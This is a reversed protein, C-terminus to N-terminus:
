IHILSLFQFGKDNDFAVVPLPGFNLGTKIIEGKENYVVPKKTKRSVSATDKRAEMGSAGGTEAFSPLSIMMAAIATLLAKM